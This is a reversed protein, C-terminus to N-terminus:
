LALVWCLLCLALGGWVRLNSLLIQMIDDCITGVSLQAELARAIEGVVGVAVM